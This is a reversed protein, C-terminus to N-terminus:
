MARLRLDNVDKCDLPDPRRAAPELCYAHSLGKAMGGSSVRSSLLLCRMGVSVWTTLRTLSM